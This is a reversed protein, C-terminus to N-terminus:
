KIYESFDDILGSLLRFQSQGQVLREFIVLDDCLDHIPIDKLLERHQGTLYLTTKLDEYAQFESLLPLMKIAEPRTGVVM